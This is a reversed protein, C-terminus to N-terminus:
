GGVCGECRVWAACTLWAVEAVLAVLVRTDNEPATPRSPPPTCRMTWGFISYPGMRAYIFGAWGFLTPVRILLGVNFHVAELVTWHHRLAQRKQTHDNRYLQKYLQYFWQCRNVYM